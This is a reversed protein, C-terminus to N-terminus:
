NSHGEGQLGEIERYDWFPLFGGLMGDCLVDRQVARAAGTIQQNGLSTKAPM